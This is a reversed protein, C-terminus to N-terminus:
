NNLRTKLTVATLLAPYFVPIKGVTGHAFLAISVAPLVSILVNKLQELLNQAGRIQICEPCNESGTCDHDLHTYIFAGSFLATLCFCITLALFITRKIDPRDM